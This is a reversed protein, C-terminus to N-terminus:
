FPVQTSASPGNFAAPWILPTLMNFNTQSATVVLASGQTQILVIPAVGAVFSFPALSKMQDATLYSSICGSPSPAAPPPCSCGSPSTAATAPCSLTAPNPVPTGLAAPTYCCVMMARAEAEALKRLSQVTIAYRGLDFIAFVITFFAAAVLCFEFAAVGRQDLKRM